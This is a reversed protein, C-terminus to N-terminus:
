RRKKKKEIIFFSKLLKVNKYIKNNMKSKADTPFNCQITNNKWIFLSDLFLLRNRLWNKTYAIKRGHLKILDKPITYDNNKFQLLYKLKYDLNFVTSGCDGTQKLYYENMFFEIFDGNGNSDVYGAEAAKSALVEIFDVCSKQAIKEM